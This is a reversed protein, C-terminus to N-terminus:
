NPSNIAIYNQNENLYLSELLVKSSCLFSIDKLSGLELKLNCSENNCEIAYRFENQHIYTNCKNFYSINGNHSSFNLYDVKDCYLKCHQCRKVMAEKLLLTFKGINTIVVATDGFDLCSTDIINKGNKFQNNSLCYTCFLLPNPSNEERYKFSGIIPMLKNNVIIKSDEPTYIETYGEYKDGIQAHNNESFSSLRQM